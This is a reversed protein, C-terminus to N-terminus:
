WMKTTIRSSPKGNGWLIPSGRRKYSRAFSRGSLSRIPSSRFIAARWAFICGPKRRGLWRKTPREGGWAYPLFAVTEGAKLYSRYLAKTFFEPEHSGGKWFSRSLHPMISAAVLAAAVLRMWAPREQSALWMASTVAVILSVFLFLRGPVIQNFMPFQALIKWPLGFLETGGVHLRPGAAMVLVVLLLLTLLRGEASRRREVCFWGVVVILAPGLYSGAEALNDDFASALTRVASIVGLEVSRTPILLNLLDIAYVRGPLLGRFRFDFLM